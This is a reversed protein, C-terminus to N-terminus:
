YNFCVPLFLPSRYFIFNGSHCSFVLGDYNNSQREHEDYFCNGAISSSIMRTAAIGRDVDEVDHLYIDSCTLFEWTNINKWLSYADMYIYYIM